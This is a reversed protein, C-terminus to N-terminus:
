GRQNRSRNRRLLLSVGVLSLMASSPEPVVVVNDIVPGYGQSDVSSFTITTSTDLATFYYEYFNYNPIAANSNVTATFNQALNGAMVNGILTEDGGYAYFSLIYQIGILTPIVTSISGVSQRNVFSPGALDVSFSGNQAANSPSTMWDVGDVGGVTWGMISTSTTALRMYNFSNGSNQSYAGLEFSGAGTGHTFDILNVAASASICTLVLIFIIKM